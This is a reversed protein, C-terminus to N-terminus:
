RAKGGKYTSRELIERRVRASLETAQIDNSPVVPGVTVEVTGSRLIWSSPMLVERTGRLAVPVVEGGTRTALVFAGRKFVGLVGDQSIRGEPFVVVPLGQRIWQVSGDLARLAARPNDRDIALHGARRLHWGLFPIRFLSKKAAFRFPFPLAALLVPIDMDSRHNPCLIYPGPGRLAELGAVRLRVGGVRLVFRAWSRACRHQLGGGSDVLSALLSATGYLVTALLILPVKFCFIFGREGLTVPSLDSVQSPEGLLPAGRENM